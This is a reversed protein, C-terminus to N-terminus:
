WGGSCSASWTCGSYAMGVPGRQRYYGGRYFGFGGGFLVVLLVVILILEMPKDKMLKDAIGASRRRGAAKCQAPRAQQPTLASGRLRLSLYVDSRLCRNVILSLVM